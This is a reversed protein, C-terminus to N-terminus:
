NPNGPATSPVAVSPPESPKSLSQTGGDGFFLSDRFYGNDEIAQAAWGSVLSTPLSRLLEPTVPFCISYEVDQYTFSGRETVQTWGGNGDNVFVSITAAKTVLEDLYTAFEYDDPKSTAYRMVERAAIIHEARTLERTTAKVLDKWIYVSM